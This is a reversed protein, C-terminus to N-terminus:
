REPQAQMLVHKACKEWELVRLALEKNDAKLQTNEDRLRDRDLHVYWTVILTVMFMITITLTWVKLQPLDM